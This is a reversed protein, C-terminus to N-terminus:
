ARSSGRARGAEGPSARAWGRPEGRASRAALHVALAAAADTTAASLPAARRCTSQGNRKRKGIMIQWHQEVAAHTRGTGLREAIVPWAQGRTGFETVLERLRVEEDDTWRVIRGRGGGDEEADAEEEDEMPVPVAAVIPISGVEPLAIGEALIEGRPDRRRRRARRAGGGGRRRRRRRDRRAERRGGARVARRARRDAAADDAGRALGVAQRRARAAQAAPRGAAREGGKAGRPACGGPHSASVSTSRRRIRRRRRRLPSAAARAPGGSRRPAPAPKNRGQRRGAGAGGCEPAPAAAAAGANEPSESSPSESSAAAAAPAVPATLMPRSRSGRVCASTAPPGGCGFSVRHRSSSYNGREHHNARPRVLRAARRHGRDALTLHRESRPWLSGQAFYPLSM